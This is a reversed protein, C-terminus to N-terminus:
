GSSGEIDGLIKGLNCGIVSLPNPQDWAVCLISSYACNATLLIIKTLISKLLNFCGIGGQFAAISSAMTIFKLIMEVKEKIRSRYCNVVISLLQCVRIM